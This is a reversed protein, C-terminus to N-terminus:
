SMELIGKEILNGNHLKETKFFFIHRYTSNVQSRTGTIHVRTGM